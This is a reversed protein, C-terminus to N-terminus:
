GHPWWGIVWPETDPFVVLVRDGAHPAAQGGVAYTPYPSPGWELTSDWSQVTYYIGSSDLRTVTGEVYPQAPPERKPQSRTGLLVDEMKGM